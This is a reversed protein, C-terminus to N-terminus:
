TSSDNMRRLEASLLSQLETFQRSIERLEGAAGGFDCSSAFDEVQKLRKVLDGAGFISVSGRLTHASRKLLVDDRRHLASYIEAYIKMSETTMLEM